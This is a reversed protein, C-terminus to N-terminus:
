LAEHWVKEFAKKFDTFVRSQSQQHRLANKVFKEPRVISLVCTFCTQFDEVRISRSVQYTAYHVHTGGLSNSFPNVTVGKPLALNVKQHKKNSFDWPFQLLYQPLLQYICDACMFINRYYLDLDNKCVM